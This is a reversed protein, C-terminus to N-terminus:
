NDIPVISKLEYDNRWSKECDLCSLYQYALLNEIEVGSDSYIEERCCYPCRNSGSAIYDAIQKDTFGNESM